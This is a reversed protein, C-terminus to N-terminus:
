NCPSPPNAIQIYNRVSMEAPFRVMFGRRSKENRSSLACGKGHASVASWTREGRTKRVKWCRRLVAACASSGRLGGFGTTVPSAPQAFAPSPKTGGRGAALDRPPAPSHRHGRERRLCGPLPTSAPLPQTSSTLYMSSQFTYCSGQCKRAM